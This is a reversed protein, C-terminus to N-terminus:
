LKEVEIVKLSELAGNLAIELNNKQRDMVFPSAKGEGMGSVRLLDEGAEDLVRIEIRFIPKKMILWQSGEYISGTIFMFAENPVNPDDAAEIFAKKGFLISTSSNLTKTSGDPSYWVGGLATMAGSVEKNLNILSLKKARMPDTVVKLGHQAVFATATETVKIGFAELHSNMAVNLAADLLGGKDEDDEEGVRVMSTALLASRPEELNELKPSKKVYVTACGMSGTFALLALCLTGIRNM